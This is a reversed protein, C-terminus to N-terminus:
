GYRRISQLTGLGILLSWLSSGGYSIFPFPIGTVPMLGLDVGSGIVAHTAIIIAIGVAFLRGFNSTARSAIKMIRSILFVIAGLVAGIGVLGFQDATSAFIFDNYPEPLFGNTTQPGKGWGSGFLHGAGIAIKSQILNYGSGHPDSGPNLFSVVRVKQYPKLAFSWGVTGVILLLVALVFLQKRNLGIAVLMGIWIFFMIIASGLDPQILTIGIPIMCYLGSVIIHRYDNIHIHRQSFYKAMFVVLVLKVFEAPEFTLGGLSIWARVGRISVFFFPMLLLIVSVVYLAFVAVSNNKLYRYNFFSLIAMMLVGFIVFAVQKWFYPNQTGGIGYIDVLSFLCLAVVTAFLPRDIGSFYQNIISSFSKKLEM